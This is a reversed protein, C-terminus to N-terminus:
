RRFAVVYDLAVDAVLGIVLAAVLASKWPWKSLALVLFALPAFVIFAV